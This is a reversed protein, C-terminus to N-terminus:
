SPAVERFSNRCCPRAEVQLGYFGQLQPHPFGSPNLGQQDNGEVSAATPLFGDDAHKPANLLNPIRQSNATAHM